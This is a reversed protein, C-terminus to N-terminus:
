AATVHRAERSSQRIWIAAFALAAGAYITGAPVWMVLGALPQDELPTLGWEESFRTQKFYLVHGAFTILAGLLTMHIMTAFLHLVASGYEARRLLAWWFALASVLFTLHQLRHLPESSVAAEFLPPAHWLWIVTGHLVTAILPSTAFRWPRRFLPRRAAHGLGARIQPPLAWLFAGTPRSAALLPAACAMVIEHEVMHASFLHEGLWHLPSCLAGALLLWGLGYCLAQWLRIGRGMGAHRWLRWTGVAYFVASMILLGTVYPDFTWHATTEDADGHALAFDPRLLLLLGVLTRVPWSM